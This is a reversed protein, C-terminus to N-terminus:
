FCNGEDDHVRVVVQHTYNRALFVPVNKWVDEVRDCKPTVLCFCDFSIVRLLKDVLLFELSSTLHVLDDEKSHLLMTMTYLSLNFVEDTM